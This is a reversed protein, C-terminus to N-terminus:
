EETISALYEPSTLLAVTLAELSQGGVFLDTLRAPPEVGRALGLYRAAIRRALRARVSPDALLDHVAAERSQGARIRSAIASAAASDTSGALADQVRLVWADEDRSGSEAEARAIFEAGALVRAILHEFGYARYVPVLEAARSPPLPRGIAGRWFGHVTLAAVREDRVWERVVSERAAGAHTAAIYAHYEARTPPTGFLLAYTRAFWAIRRVQPVRRGEGDDAIVEVQAVSARGEEDEAIIWDVTDARLGSVYAGTESIRGGSGSAPDLRFRARTGPPLLRFTRPTVTRTVVIYPEVSFGPSVLVATIASEGRADAFEIIDTVFDLPGARYAGAEVRGGSPNELVRVAYPALGGSPRLEAVHGPPVVISDPLNLVATSSGALVLALLTLMALM